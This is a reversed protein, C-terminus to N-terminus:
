WCLSPLGGGGKPWESQDEEHSPSEHFFRAALAEAGDSVPRLAQGGGIKKITFIEMITEKCTQFAAKLRQAEFATISTM